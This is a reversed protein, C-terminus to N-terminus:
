HRNEDTGREDHSDVTRPDPTKPDPDPLARREYQLARNAERQEAAHKEAQQRQVRAM